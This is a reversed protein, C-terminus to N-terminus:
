CREWDGWKSRLAALREQFSGKRDQYEPFTEMGWETQEVFHTVAGEQSFGFEAELRAIEDGDTANVLAAAISTALHWDEIAARVTDSIEGDDGSRDTVM